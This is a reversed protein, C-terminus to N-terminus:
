ERGMIKISNTLFWLHVVGDAVPSGFHDLAPEPCTADSMHNEQKISPV